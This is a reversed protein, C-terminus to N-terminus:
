LTSASAESGLSRGGEKCSEEKQKAEAERLLVFSGYTM